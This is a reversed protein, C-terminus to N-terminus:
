KNKKFFVLHIFIKFMENILAEVLDNQRKQKKKENRRSILSCYYKLGFIYNASGFLVRHQNRKLQGKLHYLIHLKNSLYLWIANVVSTM